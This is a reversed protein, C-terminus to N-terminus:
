CLELYWWWHLKCLRCSRRGSRLNQYHGVMRSYLHCCNWSGKNGLCRHITKRRMAREQSCTNWRHLSGRLLVIRLRSRLYNNRGKPFNDLRHNWECAIRLPYSLNDPASQPKTSQIKCSSATNSSYSRRPSLSKSVLVQFAYGFCLYRSCYFRLAVM